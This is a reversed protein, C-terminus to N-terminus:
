KCIVENIPGFKFKKGSQEAIANVALKGLQYLQNYNSVRTKSWGRPFMWMQSYAHTAFYVSLRKNRALDMIYSSIAKTEPESFAREGCYTEHCPNRSASEGGFNIDWNRNPDAGVCRGNQTSQPRRTGRLMRDKTWTYVYGDPNSNPIFAFDFKKSLSSQESAIIALIWLCSAPSVWERAHIGCEFLVVPKSGFNGTSSYEVAKIPRKEYTLGITKVIVKGPNDNEIRDLEQHIEDLPHYKRYDFDESAYATLTENGKQNDIMSQMDGSVIEHPVSNKALVSLIEDRDAQKVHLLASNGVSAHQWLSIKDEKNLQVLLALQENNSPKARILVANSYLEASISNQLAFLLAIALLKWM